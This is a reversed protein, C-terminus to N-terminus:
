TAQANGFMSALREAVNSGLRTPGALPPVSIVVIRGGEARVQELAPIQAQMMADDIIILAHERERQLERVIREVDDRDPSSHIEFGILRFGDALSDEGLFLMRARRDPTTDSNAM